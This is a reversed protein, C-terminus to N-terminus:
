FSASEMGLVWLASIVTDEREHAYISVLGLILAATMAAFLAGLMPDAWAQGHVQQLYLAAGIGGLVCHAIAGALYSIRKVVVYSGIIGFAIAALLGAYLAYRIFAIDPDRLAQLFEFM